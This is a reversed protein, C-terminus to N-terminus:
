GFEEDACIEGLMTLLKALLETPHVPKNLIECPLSLGYHELLVDAVMVNASFLLIRCFPIRDRIEWTWTAIPSPTAEGFPKFLFKVLVDGRDDADVM